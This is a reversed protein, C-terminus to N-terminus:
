TGNATAASVSTGLHVGLLVCLGPLSLTLLAPFHRLPNPTTVHERPARLRRSTGGMGRIGGQIKGTVLEALGGVVELAETRRCLFGQGEVARGAHGESRGSASRRGPGQGRGDQAGGGYSRPM